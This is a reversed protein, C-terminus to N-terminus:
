AKDMYGIQKTKCGYKLLTELFARGGGPVTDDQVYCAGWKNTIPHCEALCKDVDFCNPGQAEKMKADFSISAHGKM